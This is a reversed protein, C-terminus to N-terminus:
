QQRRVRVALRGAFDLATPPWRQHVAPGPCALLADGISIGTRQERDCCLACRWHSVCRPLAPNEYYGAITPGSGEPTLPPCGSAVITILKPVASPMLDM